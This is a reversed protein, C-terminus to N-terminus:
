SAEWDIVKSYREILIMEDPCLINKDIYRQYDAIASEKDKYSVKGLEHREGWDNKPNTMRGEPNIIVWQYSPVLKYKM